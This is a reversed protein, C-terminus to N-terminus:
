QSNFRKKDRLVKMRVRRDVPTRAVIIPLDGSDKVEKGDFEIPPPEASKSM